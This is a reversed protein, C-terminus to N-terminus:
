LVGPRSAGRRVGFCLPLLLLHLPRCLLQRPLLLGICIPVVHDVTRVRLTVGSVHRPAPQAPMLEVPRSGITAPSKFLSLGIALGARWASAIAAERGIGTCRSWANPALQSAAKGGTGAGTGTRSRVRGQAHNM